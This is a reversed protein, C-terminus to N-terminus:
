LFDFADLIVCLIIVGFIHAQSIDFFHLYSRPHIVLSFALTPPSQTSVIFDKQKHKLKLVM